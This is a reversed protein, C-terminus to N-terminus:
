AVALVQQDTEISNFCVVAPPQGGHAAHPWQHNYLEIVSRGCSRPAHAERDTADKPPDIPKGERPSRSALSPPTESYGSRHRKWDDVPSRPKSTRDHQRDISAPLPWAPRWPQPEPLATPLASRRRMAIQPNSRVMPTGLPSEPLYGHASSRGRLLEVQEGSGAVDLRDRQVPPHRGLLHPHRQGLQHDAQDQVVGRARLRRQATLEDRHALVCAKAGDGIMEGTVASLMITKGAGTPAAGLTNGRSALAAV